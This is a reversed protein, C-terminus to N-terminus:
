VILDQEVLRSLPQSQILDDKEWILCHPKYLGIPGTSFMKNHKTESMESLKFLTCRMVMM